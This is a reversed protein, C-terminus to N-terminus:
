YIPFKAYSNEIFSRSEVTTYECTLKEIEHCKGQM